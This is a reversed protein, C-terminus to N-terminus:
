LCLMLVLRWYGYRVAADDIRLLVSIAGALGVVCTVQASHALLNTITLLDGM